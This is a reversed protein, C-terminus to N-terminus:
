IKKDSCLKFISLASCAADKLPNGLILGAAGSAAMLAPILRRQRSHGTQEKDENQKTHPPAFPEAVRLLEVHDDAIAKQEKLLLNVRYEISEALVALKALM